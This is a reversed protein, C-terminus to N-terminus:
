GGESGFIPPLLQLVYKMIWPFNSLNYFILRYYGLLGFFCSPVQHWRFFCSPVQHWWLPDPPVQLSRFPGSPVQLSRFPSSPVQLSRFPGVPDLPVQYVVPRFIFPSTYGSLIPCPLISYSLVLDSFIHFIKCINKLLKWVEKM